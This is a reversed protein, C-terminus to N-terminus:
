GEFYADMRQHFAQIEAFQPQNLLARVSEADRASAPWPDAHAVRLAIQAALAAADRLGRITVKDVTDFETHGYGRGSRTERVAEIGGTVVGELLFSYHDSASHFNQGIAFDQAMEARFNEFLSQLNEWAHLNIDKSPMGGAADMNLYFRIKSLEAAHDRVYAKSGLLGIEEVGWFAFRLTRPVQAHKGLVRAAELVSVVGSAPDGAGQAIDHGDYHSGLMVIEEPKETGVLDGIVNWSVLPRIQDNSALRITVSGHKKALRQIFAGDEHSIAIGPIPAAKGHSGIGGTAPGYGPYHNVFIFGAAGALLSRGYKEQRHVWRKIGKPYLESNTMLFKGKIEAAHADFDAPFGAGIDFIEAEIKVPPSHPLTICPITKQIPSVIELTATGREWGLYDFPELHVNRLGYEEMKAKLFNAARKEGETGGFRSGFDDCLTELNDMAERSSYIDGLIKQDIPLHPNSMSNGKSKKYV